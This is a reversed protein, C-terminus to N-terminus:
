CQTGTCPICTGACSRVCTDDCSVTPPCTTTFGGAVAELAESNLYRLTERNLQLKRVTHKKM